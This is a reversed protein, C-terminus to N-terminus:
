DPFVTVMGPRVDVHVAWGDRVGIGTFGARRAQDETAYGYKLDAAQGTLHYSRRAGGVARNWVPCRYGSVVVLPRGTLKRLQELKTVLRPEVVAERCHRCAFERKSFHLSLDGV